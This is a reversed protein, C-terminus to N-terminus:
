GIMALGAVLSGLWIGAGFLPALGATVAMSSVVGRITKSGGFLPRGDPLKMGGDLAFALRRGLLKKVIVPTGNALTLLCLAQFIPIVQMQPRKEHSRIAVIISGASTM